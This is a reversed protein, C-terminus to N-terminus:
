FNVALNISFQEGDNFNPAGSGNEYKLNLSIYKPFNFCVAGVVRHYFEDNAFDYWGWTEPNVSISYKANNGFKLIDFKGEGGLKTRLIVSNVEEESEDVANGTEVKPDDDIESKHGAILFVGVRNELGLRWKHTLLFPIYGIEFLSNVYDSHKNTELVINFQFVHFLKSSDPTVINGIKITKFRIYNGNLKTIFGNFVDGEGTRLNIEPNIHFLWGSDSCINKPKAHDFLYISDIKVFYKFLLGVATKVAEAEITGISLEYSAKEASYAIKTIGNFSLLLLMFIFVLIKIKLKM